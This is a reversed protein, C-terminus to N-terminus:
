LEQAFLAEVDGSDFGRDTIQVTENLLANPNSSRVNLTTGVVEFTATLLQRDELAEVSLRGKCLNQLM